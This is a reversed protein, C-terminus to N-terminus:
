RRPPTSPITRSRASKGTIIDRFNEHLFMSDSEVGAKLEHSGHHVSVAANFYGETFDNHLFAMIPWTSDANSNLDNPTTGFWAGFIPWSMQRFFTSTPFSAWPRSTTPPRLSDLLKSFKNTPFKTARYNTAFVSAHAHDKPTFDRAFSLSFDGTTGRNTYNEPVVPNLYHATM